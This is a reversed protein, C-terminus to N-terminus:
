RIKQHSQDDYVNKSGGASISAQLPSSTRLASRRSTTAVAWPVTGCPAESGGRATARFRRTAATRADTAVQFGKSKILEKVRDVIYYYGEEDVYGVDGTRLWGDADLCEATADPRGLYGRM